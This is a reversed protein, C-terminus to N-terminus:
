ARFVRALLPVLFFLFVGAIGCFKFALPANLGAVLGTLAIVVYVAGIAWATILCALGLPNKILVWHWLQKLSSM